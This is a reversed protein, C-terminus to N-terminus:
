TITWNFKSNKSLEPCLRRFETEWNSLCDSLKLVPIDSIACPYEELQLFKFLFFLLKTSLSIGSEKKNSIKLLEDYRRFIRDRIHSLNPLPHGTIEHHLLNIDHYNDTTIAKGAKRLKKMIFFLQEKTLNDRDTETLDIYTSIEQRVVPAISDPAQLGEFKMVIYRLQARKDVASKSTNTNTTNEGDALDIPIDTVPCTLNCLSCYYYDNWDELINGCDICIGEEHKRELRIVILSPFFDQLVGLYEDVLRNRQELLAPEIKAPEEGYIQITRASKPNIMMYSQIIPYARSIFMPKSTDDITNLAKQHLLVINYDDKYTIETPLQGVLKRKSTCKMKTNDTRKTRLNNCSDGSNIGNDEPKTTIRRNEQDSGKKHDKKITAVRM